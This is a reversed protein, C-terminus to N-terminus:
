LLGLESKLVCVSQLHPSPCLYEMCISILVFSSYCNEYWVFYVKFYLSNCSVYFFVVYHDFILVLLLYWLQLYKHVWSLIVEICLAFALMQLLPFLCYCLITPSQLVGSEGNSLNDLILIFLSVRAKFSVYFLISKISVKLVNWGFVVSYVKKELAWAVNELISWIKCWLDVNPLNLFISITDLKKESWM